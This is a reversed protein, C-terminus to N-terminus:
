PRARAVWALIAALPIMIIRLDIPIAIVASAAHPANSAQPEGAARGAAGAAGAVAAAETV